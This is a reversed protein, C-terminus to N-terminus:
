NFEKKDGNHFNAIELELDWLIKRSFNCSLGWDKLIETYQTFQNELAIIDEQNFVTIEAGATIQGLDGNLVEDFYSEWEYDDFLHFLDTMEFNYRKFMDAKMACIKEFDYLFAIIPAYIKVGIQIIRERPFDIVGGLINVLTDTLRFETYLSLWNNVENLYNHSLQYREPRDMYFLIVMAITLRDSDDNIVFGNDSAMLRQLLRAPIKAKINKHPITFLREALQKPFLASEAVRAVESQDDQLNKILYDILSPNIFRIHEFEDYYEFEIFGQLLKKFSTAFPHQPRTLNNYAVEYDIRALFAKQLEDVTALSGFSVLTNLLFRDNDSIQNLYAHEWILDPKDFNQYIYDRFENANSEPAYDHSCIFEVSRPYFNRHTVIFKQVEFEKLVEKFENKLESEEIHNDLMRIKLETSYQNLTIISQKNHINLRAFNESSRVADNLIFTRTTFVVFKNPKGKIINLISILYHESARAQQIEVQNHGLFDDYYFIQKSNDDRIAKSIDKIEIAYTLEFKETIYKYLIQEALSTKGSGPEGTIILFNNKELMAIAENYIPPSVFLRIKRKLTIESFERSRGITEYQLIKKLTVTGSFWIKSHSELVEPHARLMRNLDKRGYIDGLSKIYPSFSEKIDQIENKSLDLSTAFLYQDPNLKRVKAVETTKLNKLLLKFGTRYYHKVQGVHTYKAGDASYAIDVGQDKGDKFSRYRIESHKKSLDANILDRFLDELDASNLTSFDYDPM